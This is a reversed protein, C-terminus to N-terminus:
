LVVIEIRRNRKRGEATKDSEIPRADGFSVAAIRNPAVSFNEVIYRTVATARAASLEWNTPYTKAMSAGPKSTDAHGHVRLEGNAVADGLSAVAEAILSHGAATLTASAPEFLDDISLAVAIRGGDECVVLQHELQSIRNQLLRYDRYYQGSEVGVVIGLSDSLVKVEGALRRNISRLTDLQEQRDDRVAQAPASCGSVLIVTALALGSIIPLLSVAGRGNKSM